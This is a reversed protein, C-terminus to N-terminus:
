SENPCDVGMIQLRQGYNNGNGNTCNHGMIENIYLLEPEFLAKSKNLLKSLLRVYINIGAIKKKTIPTM